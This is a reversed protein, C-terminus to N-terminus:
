RPPPPARHLRRHWRGIIRRLAQLLDPRQVHSIYDVFQDRGAAGGTLWGLLAAGHGPLEAEIDQMLALLQGGPADGDGPADSM